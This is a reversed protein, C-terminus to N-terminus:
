REEIHFATHVMTLPEIRCQGNEIVKDAFYEQLIGIVEYREKYRKDVMFTACENEKDTVCGKSTDRGHMDFLDKLQEIAEKRTVKTKEM